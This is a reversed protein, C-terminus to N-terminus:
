RKEGFEEPHENKYESIEFTLTKIMKEDEDTLEFLIHNSRNYLKTAYSFYDAWKLADVNTSNNPQLVTGSEKIRKSKALFINRIDEMLVNAFNRLKYRERYFDSRCQIYYELQLAKIEVETKRKNLETTNDPSTDFVDNLLKLLDKLDRAMIGIDIFPMSEAINLMENCETNIQQVSNTIIASM